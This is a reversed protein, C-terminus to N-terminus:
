LEYDEVFTRILLELEDTQTRSIGDPNLALQLARVYHAWHWYYRLPLRGRLLLLSTSLTWEQWEIAKFGKHSKAINRLTRSFAAPVTFNAAALDSGILDWIPKKLNFKEGNLEPKSFFVGAWHQAMQGAVNLFFTHMGEVPFSVAIDFYQIEHLLSM